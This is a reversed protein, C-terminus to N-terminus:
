KHHFDVVRRLDNVQNTAEALTARIARTGTSVSDWLARAHELIEYDETEDKFRVTGLDRIKDVLDELHHTMADIDLQLSAAEEKSNTVESSWTLLADNM